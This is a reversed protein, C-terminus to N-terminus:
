VSTAAHLDPRPLPLAGSPLGDGAHHGDADAAGEQPGEEHVSGRRVSWTPGIDQDSCLWLCASCIQEEDANKSTEKRPRRETCGASRGAVGVRPKMSRLVVLLMYALM